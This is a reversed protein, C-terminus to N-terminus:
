KVEGLEIKSVYTDLDNLKAIRAKIVDNVYTDGQATDIAIIESFNQDGNVYIVVVGIDGNDREIREIKAQWM